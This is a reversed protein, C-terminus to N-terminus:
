KNKKPKIKSTDVYKDFWDQGVKKTANEATMENNIIKNRMNLMYNLANWDFMDRRISLEYLMTYRSSFFNFEDKLKIYIDEENLVKIDNDDLRKRIDKITNIIEDNTLGDAIFDKNM